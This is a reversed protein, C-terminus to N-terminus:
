FHANRNGVPCDAARARASAVVRDGVPRLAGGGGIDRRRDLQIEQSEDNHVGLEIRHESLNDFCCNGAKAPPYPNVPRIASIWLNEASRLPSVIFYKM